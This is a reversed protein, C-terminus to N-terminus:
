SICKKLVSHNSLLEFFCWSWRKYWNAACYFWNFPFTVNHKELPMLCLKTLWSRPGSGGTKSPLSFFFISHGISLVLPSFPQFPFLHPLYSCRSLIICFSAFFFVAPLSSLSASISALLFSPYLSITLFCSFILLHISFFHCELSSLSSILHDFFVLPSFVWFSLNCCFISPSIVECVCVHLCM